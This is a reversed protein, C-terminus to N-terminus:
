QRGVDRAGSVGELDKEHLRAEFRVVWFEHEKLWESRAADYKSQDSQAHSDGDIEILQKVEACTSPSM